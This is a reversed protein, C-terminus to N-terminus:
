AADCNRIEAKIVLLDVTKFSSPVEPSCRLEPPLERVEQPTFVLGAPFPRNGSRLRHKLPARLGSLWFTEYRVFSHSVITVSVLM